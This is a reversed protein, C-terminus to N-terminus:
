PSNEKYLLPLRSAPSVREMWWLVESQSQDPLQWCLPSAGSAAAAGIDYSLICTPTPSFFHRQTEVSEKVQESARCRSLYSCATPQGLCDNQHYRDAKKTTKMVFHWACFWVTRQLRQQYLDLSGIKCVQCVEKTATGRWSDELQSGWLSKFGM